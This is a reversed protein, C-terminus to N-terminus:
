DERNIVEFACGSLAAGQTAFIKGDATIFVAEFDSSERWFAIGEELGMVFLGTSLADAVMGDPCIVTVSCLDTQAPRGTAPDLIHHYRIGDQEFYRQYDGSTVVAMTGSVAVTGVPEGGQPNQIGIIWPEANKKQGYTQVNGGLNLIASEVQLEALAETCLQGTYGKVIGGLDWKPTGAADLLEEATPVYYGENYFGWCQMVSGLQPDFTGNTRISLAEARQIFANQEQTLQVPKDMNIQSLLSDPDTASWLAEQQYIIQTLADLGEQADKGWLQLQMVTDMAFLTSEAQKKCGPLGLLLVGALCIALWRKM